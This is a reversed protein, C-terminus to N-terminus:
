LKPYVQIHVQRVGWQLAEPLRDMYLDIRDGRIAGGTDEAIRCQNLEEICVRSGLPIVGPDVALTQGPKARVGTATVGYAPHGPGKGTSEPGATYATATVHKGRFGEEFAPVTEEGAAGGGSPQGLLAAALVLAALQM